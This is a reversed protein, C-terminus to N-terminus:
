EETEFQYEPKVPPNKDEFYSIIKLKEQDNLIGGIILKKPDFFSRGVFIKSNGIEPLLKRIDQVWNEIELILQGDKTNRFKFDDKIERYEEICYDYLGNKLFEKNDNLFHKLKKLNEKGNININLIKANEFDIKTKSIDDLVTESLRVKNMEVAYQITNSKLLEFKTM